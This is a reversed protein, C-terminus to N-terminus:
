FAFFAYELLSHLTEFVVLSIAKKSSCFSKVQSALADPSTRRVHMALNALTAGGNGRLYDILSQVGEAGLKPVALLMRTLADQVTVFQTKKGERQFEEFLTLDHMDDDEDRLRALHSSICDLIQGSHVEDDSRIVDFGSILQVHRIATRVSEIPMAPCRYLHERGEILYIVKCIGPTRMLRGRQEDYRGDVISSALDELKKREVVVGTTREEGGRRWVWCFDGISLGRMESNNIPVDRERADALLLLSWTNSTNSSHRMLTPLPIQSLQRDRMHLRTAIESGIPTLALTDSTPQTLWGCDILKAITARAPIVSGPTHVNLQEVLSPLSSIAFSPATGTFLYASTMLSWAGSKPAPLSSEAKKVKKAPPSEEIDEPLHMRILKNVNDLLRERFADSSRHPEAPKTDLVRQFESLMEEGVGELRSAQSTSIIEDKFHKLSNLVKKYTM